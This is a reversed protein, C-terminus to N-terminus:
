RLKDHFCCRVAAAGVDRPTVGSNANALIFLLVTGRSLVAGLVLFPVLRNNEQARDRSTQGLHACLVM